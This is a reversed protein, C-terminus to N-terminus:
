ARQAQRYERWKLYFLLGTTFVTLTLFILADYFAGSGAGGTRTIALVSRVLYEWTVPLARMFFNALIVGTGLLYLPLYLRVSRLEREPIASLDAQAWSRKWSGPLPWTAFVLALRTGLLTRSDEMLNKCNLFNAILYYVDTRMQFQFEWLIGWFQGFILAKLLAYFVIPLAIRGTDNLVLLILNLAILLTDGIMGALYIIYRKNRPIGWAGSVDTQAVVFLLRTGLSFDAQVGEARAALFHWFEHWATQLWSLAFLSLLVVTLSPHYFWDEYRPLYAPHLFWILVVWAATLGYFVRAPLSFMWAVQRAQLGRWFLRREKVVPAILEGDIREIFGSELMAELFSEMEPEQGYKAGIEAKVEGV